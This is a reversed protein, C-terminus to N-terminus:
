ENAIFTLDKIKLKGEHYLDIKPDLFTLQQFLIDRFSLRKLMERVTTIYLDLCKFRIQQACELSLTEL